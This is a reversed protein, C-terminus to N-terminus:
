LDYKCDDGNGVGTGGTVERIYDLSTRTDHDRQGIEWLEAETLPVFGEPEHWGTSLRGAALLKARAAERTLPQTPAPPPEQELSRVIVEVQGTPMDDPLQIILNHQEDVVANMKVAVM